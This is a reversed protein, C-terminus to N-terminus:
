VPAQPDVPDTVFEGRLRIGRLCPMAVVNIDGDTGRLAAHDRIRYPGEIIQDGFVDVEALAPGAIERLRPGSDVIRGTADVAFHFPFARDILRRQDEGRIM